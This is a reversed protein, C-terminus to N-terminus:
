KRLRGSFLFTPGPSSGIIYNITQFEELRCKNFTIEINMKLHFPLPQLLSASTPRLGEQTEGAARGLAVTRLEAFSAAEGYSRHLCGRVSGERRFASGM